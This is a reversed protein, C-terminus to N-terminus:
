RVRCALTAERTLLWTIGVLGVSELLSPLKAAMRSVGLLAYSAAIAYPQWAAAYPQSKLMIPRHTKCDV